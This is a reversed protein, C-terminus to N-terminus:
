TRRSEESSGDSGYVLCNHNGSALLLEIVMRRAALVRPSETSVVM